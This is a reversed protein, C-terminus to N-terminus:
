KQISGSEDDPVRVNLRVTDSLSAHALTSFAWDDGLRYVVSIRQGIQQWGVAQFPFVQRGKQESRQWSVSRPVHAVSPYRREPGDSM